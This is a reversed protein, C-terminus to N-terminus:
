VNLTGGLRPGEFDPASSLHVKIRGASAKELFTGVAEAIKRDSHKHSIFLM